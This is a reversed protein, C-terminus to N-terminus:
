RDRVLRLESPEDTTSTRYTERRILVAPDSWDFSLATLWSEGPDIGTADRFTFRLTGPDSMPHSALRPQNGQPCYHTALLRTGDQTYLTLSHPRGARTWEEVITTGGATSSFRIRLPSAPRDAPRWSGELRALAALGTAGPASSTAALLLPLGLLAAVRWGSSRRDM